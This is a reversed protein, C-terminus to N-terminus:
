TWVRYQPVCVPENHHSSTCLTSFPSPCIQGISAFTDWRLGVDRTADLCAAERYCCDSRGPDDLALGDKGYSRLDEVTTANKSECHGDCAGDNHVPDNECDDDTMGQAVENDGPAVSEAWFRCADGDGCPMMIPVHLHSDRGNEASMHVTVM